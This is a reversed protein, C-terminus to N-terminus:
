LLKLLSTVNNRRDFCNCQLQQLVSAPFNFIGYNTCRVHYSLCAHQLQKAHQLMSEMFLLVKQTENGYETLLKIEKNRTQFNYAV